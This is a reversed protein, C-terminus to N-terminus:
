FGLLNKFSKAALTPKKTDSRLVGAIGWKLPKANKINTLYPNAIVAQQILFKELEAIHVKNVVGKKMPYSIFFMVPTGSKYQSLVPLYKAIKDNTFAEQGFSKTAKGVYFPTFGGGAKMAFIYCGLEGKSNSNQEWFKKINEPTITKGAAYKTSPITLPSNCIFQSM